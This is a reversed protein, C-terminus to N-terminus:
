NNELKINDQNSIIAYAAKISFSNYGSSNWIIKDRSLQFQQIYTSHIKQTIDEPLEFSLKSINFYGDQIISKVNMDVEEKKLPGQILNRLTDGHSM